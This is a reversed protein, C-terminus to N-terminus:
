WRNYKAESFQNSNFNLELVKTRQGISFYVFIERKNGDGQNKNSELFILQNSDWFRNLSFNKQIKRRM